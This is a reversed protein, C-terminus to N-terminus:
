AVHKVSRPRTFGAEPSKQVYADIGFVGREKTMKIIKRTKKHMIYSNEEDFM